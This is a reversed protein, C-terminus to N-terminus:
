VFVARSHFTQSYNDSGPECKQIIYTGLDLNKDAYAIASAEDGYSGVVAQNKIIIYQGNFKEVLEAQHDLYFQFEKKLVNIDEIKMKGEGDWQKREKNYYLIM